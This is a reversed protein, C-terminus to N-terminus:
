RGKQREREQYSRLGLRVLEDITLKGGWDALEKIKPFVDKARGTIRIVTVM